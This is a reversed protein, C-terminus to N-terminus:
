KKNVTKSYIAFPVTYSKKLNMLYITNQPDLSTIKNTSDFIKNKLDVYKTFKKNFFLSKINKNLLINNIDQQQTHDYKVSSNIYSHNKGDFLEKLSQGRRRRTLEVLGLESLQVIQPKAHDSELLKNFHELLQLQDRSSLMDIFDVIIVGNINRIKLQYAIEIAAYFNTQLITEKSNSSKNFSGSNVDIVTLAENHEIILHGGSFLKVHPILAKSITKKVHFKQLICQPKQHIEVKVRDKCKWRNLYHKIQEGGSKSDIIINKINEGYNDRIIKQILDKEKYLLCPFSSFIAAKEIFIWQKKLSNLDEIIAKESVGQAFSRILIGMRSPKILIALSHLHIRENQDYIKHSICITNCFPMLVIYRGSLNINTTLRPGKYVTPEKTIQVLLVQNISLVEHIHNTHRNKKLRQIDNIHIFGSKRNKNLKIFAGNISSFIKQVIGIYIDNVQYTNNILIIEEIKNNHLSAAINNLSSIVIKNTM